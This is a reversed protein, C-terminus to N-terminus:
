YANEASPTKSEDAMEVDGKNTSRLRMKPAQKTSSRRTFGVKQARAEQGSYSSASNEVESSSGSKVAASSSAANKLNSIPLPGGGVAM